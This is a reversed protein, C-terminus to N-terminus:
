RASNFSGFSLVLAPVIEIIECVAGFTDGTAGGIKRYVYASLALTVAVCVACAILGRSGLVCWAAAALVAVSWIAALRAQRHYFINALGSPRAYPLLAMQVVIACRGALPMLLVAPWFREAPLSALAAFKLLLVCAIAIVGMAGTHSDKMIELMRERPRSSLMGDASDALGDLHLCGSFSLLVVVIVAAGVMPLAVLSLGYAAAAAIAGLLLGVIPFWPVSRALDEEATGWDGPIPLITLFRIAAFLSKM